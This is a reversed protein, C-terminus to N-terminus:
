HADTIIVKKCRTFIKIFMSFIAKVNIITSNGTMNFLLKTIEDIYVVTSYDMDASKLLSNICIVSDNNWIDTGDTDDALYHTIPINVSYFTKQLQELISTLNSITLIRSEPHKTKYEKYLSEVFSSKGTGTGSEIIYIDSAEFQNYPLELKQQTIEKKPYPLKFFDTEDSNRTQLAKELKPHRLINLPEDFLKIM